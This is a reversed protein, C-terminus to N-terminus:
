FRPCLQVRRMWLRVTSGSERSTSFNTSTPEANQNRHVDINTDRLRTRELYGRHLFGHLFCLGYVKRPTVKKNVGKSCPLSLADPRALAEVDNAGGPQSDDHVVLAGGGERCTASLLSSHNERCIRAANPRIAKRLSPSWADFLEQAIAEWALSPCVHVEYHCSQASVSHAGHAISEQGQKVHKNSKLPYSIAQSANIAHM